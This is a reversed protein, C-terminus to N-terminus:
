IGGNRLGLFGWEPRAAQPAPGRLHHQNELCVHFIYGLHVTYIHPHGLIFPKRSFFGDIFPHNLPIGMKPFGHFGGHIYIYVCLITVVYLSYHKYSYLIESSNMTSSIDVYLQHINSGESLQSPM